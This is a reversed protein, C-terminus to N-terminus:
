GICLWDPLTLVDQVTWSGDDDFEIHILGPPCFWARFMYGRNEKAESAMLLLNRMGIWKMKDWRTKTAFLDRWGGQYKSGPGGRRTLRLLSMAGVKPLDALVDEKYKPDIEVFEADTYDHGDITHFNARISEQSMPKPKERPQRNYPTQSCKKTDRTRIPSTQSM